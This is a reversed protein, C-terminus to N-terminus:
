NAKEQLESCLSATSIHLALLPLCAIKVIQFYGKAHEERENGKGCESEKRRKIVGLYRCVQMCSASVIEIEANERSDAKCAPLLHTQMPLTAFILNV